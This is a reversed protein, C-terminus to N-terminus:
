RWHPAAHSGSALWSADLVASTVSPDPLPGPRSAAPRDPASACAPDEDPPAADVHESAPAHQLRVASTQPSLMLHQEPSAHVAPRTHADEHRSMVLVHVADPSHQRPVYQSVAADRVQTAQTMSMDAQVSL